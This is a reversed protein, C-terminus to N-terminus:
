SGFNLGYVKVTEATRRCWRWRESIVAEATRQSDGGAEAEDANTDSADTEDEMGIQRLDLLRSFYLM